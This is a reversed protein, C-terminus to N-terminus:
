RPTRSGSSSAYGSGWNTTVIFSGTLPGPVGQCVLNKRTISVDDILLVVGTRPGEAYGVLQTLACNPVPVNGETAGM